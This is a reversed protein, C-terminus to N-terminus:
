SLQVKVDNVLMDEGGTNIGLQELGPSAHLALCTAVFEAYRVLPPVSSVSPTSASDSESSFSLWSSVVMMVFTMLVSFSRSIDVWGSLLRGEPSSTHTYTSPASSEPM